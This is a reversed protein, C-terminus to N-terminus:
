FLGLGLLGPEFYVKLIVGFVFTVAATFITAFALVLFIRREHWLLPLAVCILFITLVTGFYPAGISAVLLLLLTLWTVRPIATGRTKRIKNFRKKLLKHEFPIALALAAIIALVIRPFTEPRINQSLLASVEEFTSTVYFLLGCLTIIVAALLTDTRDVLPPRSAGQRREDQAWEHEAPEAM